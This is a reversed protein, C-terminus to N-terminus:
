EELYPMAKDVISRRLKSVKSNDFGLKKAIEGPKLRPHGNLGVSLEHVKREEPTLLPYIILAVEMERDSVSHTLNLSDDGDSQILGKRMSKNLVKVQKLSLGSHHALTIDDPEHDLKETLESKSANYRGIDKSVNAPIRAFNQHDKVFRDTRKLTLTIYTTLQAGRSPDYTKLANVLLKKHKYELTKEPIETQGRYRKMGNQVVKNLSKLLPELHEQKMGNEKWTKWLEMEKARVAPLDVQPTAAKKQAPTQFMPPPAFPMKQVVPYAATVAKKAAIKDLVWSLAEERSDPTDM